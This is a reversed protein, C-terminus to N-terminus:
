GRPPSIIVDFSMLGNKAGSLDDQIAVPSKLAQGPDYVLCVVHDVQPNKGYDLLDTALETKIKKADAAKRVYKLEVMTRLNKLYFECRASSGAVSPNWEEDRVDAIYAALIARFLYQCDWEDKITFVVGNHPHDKLSLVSEHFRRALGMILDVGAQVPKASVIHPKKSEVYDLVAAVAAVHRRTVDILFPPGDVKHKAQYKEEERDLEDAM